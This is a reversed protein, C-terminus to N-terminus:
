DRLVDLALHYPSANTAENELANEQDSKVMRLGQQLQEKIFALYENKAPNSSALCTQFKALGDM